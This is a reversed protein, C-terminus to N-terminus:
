RDQCVLNLGDVEDHTFLAVGEGERELDGASGLGTLLDWFDLKLPSRYYHVTYQYHEVFVKFKGLYELDQPLLLYGVEAQLERCVTEQPSEGAEIGGGFIAGRQPIDQPPQGTQVAM